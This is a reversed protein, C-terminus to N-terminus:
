TILNSLCLLGVLSEFIVGGINKKTFSDNFLSMFRIFSATVWGVGIVIFVDNSQTAIAYLSIGIFFGGYTAKIESQGEKGIAQVSVFSQILQPRFLAILGLALCILVGVNSLLLGISM